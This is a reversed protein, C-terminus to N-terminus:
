TWWVWRRWRNPRRRGNLLLGDLHTILWIVWATALLIAILHLM